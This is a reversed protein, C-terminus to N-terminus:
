GPNKYLCYQSNSVRGMYINHVRQIVILYHIQSSLILVVLINKIFPFGAAFTVSCYIPHNPSVLQKQLLQSMMNFVYNNIIVILSFGDHQHNCHVQSHKYPSDMFVCLQLLLRTFGMLPHPLSYCHFYLLLCLVYCSTIIVVILIGIVM